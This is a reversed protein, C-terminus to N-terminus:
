GCGTVDPGIGDRVFATIDRVVPNGSRFPWAFATVVSVHDQDDYLVTRHCNGNAKLVKTLRDINSRGVVNDRLGYLMLIPPEGGDVFTGAQMQPYRSSPGFVTQLVPTDPFFDYPGALGVMGTIAARSVGAETLYREDVTLMMATHGGASHGSLVIRNPDGGYAAINAHVWAVAKAGDQVFAPYTVDPHKRYDPLVVVIGDRALTMAVFRFDDKRGGRWGGGHIFVMVPASKAEAPAIVDLGLGTAPDFVQDQVIRGGFVWQEANALFLQATRSLVLTLGLTLVGVLVLAIIIWRM